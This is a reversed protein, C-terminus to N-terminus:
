PLSPWTSEGLAGKGRSLVRMLLTEGFRIKTREVRTDAYNLKQPQPGWITELSYSSKIRISDGPSNVSINRLQPLICMVFSVGGKVIKFHETQLMLCMKVNKHMWDGSTQMKWFQFDRGVFVKGGRRARVVM